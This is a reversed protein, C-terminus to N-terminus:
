RLCRSYRFWKRRWLHNMELFKKCNMLGKIFFFDDDGSCAVYKTKIHDLSRAISVQYGVPTHLVKINKYESLLSQLKKTKQKESADLFLIDGQFDISYYYNALEIVFKARDKTPIIITIDKSSM